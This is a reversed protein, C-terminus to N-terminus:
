DHGIRFRKGDIEVYARNPGYGTVKIPTGAPILPFAGWNGDSIWDDVYHLNCCTYGAPLTGFGVPSVLTTACGALVAAMAAPVLIPLKM